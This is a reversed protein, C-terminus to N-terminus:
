LYRCSAALFKDLSNHALTGASFKRVNKPFGSSSLVTKRMQPVFLLSLSIWSLPSPPKKRPQFHPQPRLLLPTPSPTPPFSFSCLRLAWTGSGSLRQPALGVAAVQVCEYVLCIPPVRLRSFLRLRRGQTAEPAAAAVMFGAALNRGAGPSYYAAFDLSVALREDGGGRDM